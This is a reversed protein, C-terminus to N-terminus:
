NSIFSNLDDFRNKLKQLVVELHQNSPINNLEDVNSLVLQFIAGSNSQAKGFGIVAVYEDGDGDGDPLKSATFTSRSLREWYIDDELYCDTSGEFGECSNEFDFEKDSSNSNFM